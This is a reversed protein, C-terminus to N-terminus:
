SKVTERLALFDEKYERFATSRSLLGDIIGSNLRTLLSPEGALPHGASKGEAQKEAGLDSDGSANL